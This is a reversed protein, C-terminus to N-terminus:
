PRVAAVAVGERQQRNYRHQPQVHTQPRAPVGVLTEHGTCFAITATLMTEKLSLQGTGVGVRQSRRGVAVAM